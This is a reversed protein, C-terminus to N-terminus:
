LETLRSVKVTQKKLELLGYATLFSVDAADRGTGIRVIENTKAMGTPDVLHWADELYVEVVAHFDQPEVDLGYASVMRAPIAVARAMAILVHAYDRCVGERSEFTNHATTLPCSAGSVYRFNCAIWDLMAAILPGGSLEGFETETFDYFKEPHCFRSPMLDKVVASPVSCLPSQRLAKLDTLPRLVRVSAEYTCEFEADSHLWIRQGIGNEGDIRNLKSSSPINLRESIVEQDGGGAAEVQLLLDVPQPVAYLLHTTVQIDM